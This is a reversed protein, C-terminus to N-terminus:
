ASAKTLKRLATKAARESTHESLVVNGKRVAWPKKSNSTRGVEPVVEADTIPARDGTTPANKAENEVPTPGKPTQPEAAARAVAEDSKAFDDAKEPETSPSAKLELKHGNPLTVEFPEDLTTVGKEGLLNRLAPASIRAPHDKDIGATFDWDVDLLTNKKARVPKGDVYFRLGDKPVNILKARPAKPSGSGGGNGGTPTGAQIADLNPTDPKAGKRGGAIWDKMAKEERRANTLRTAKDKSAEATKMAQTTSM